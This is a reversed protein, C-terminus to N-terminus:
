ASAEMDLSAVRHAELAIRYEAAVAELREPTIDRIFFSMQNNATEDCFSLSIFPTTVGPTCENVDLRLNSM